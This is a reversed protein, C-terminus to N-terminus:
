GLLKKTADKYNGIYLIIDDASLSLKVEEVRVQIGKIAKGQRTALALVEISHQIFTSLTPM